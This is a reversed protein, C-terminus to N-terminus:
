PSSASAAHAARGQWCPRTIKGPYDTAASCVGGGSHCANRWDEAGGAKAPKAKHAAHGARGEARIKERYVRIKAQRTRRKENSCM